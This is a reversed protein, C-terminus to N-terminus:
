RSAGWCARKVADPARDIRYARRREDFWGIWHRCAEGASWDLGAAGGELRALWRRAARSTHRPGAVARVLEWAHKRDLSPVRYGSAGFGTAIWVDRPSRALGRVTAEWRAVGAAREADSVHPDMFDVTRRNAIGELAAAARSRLDPDADHLLTALPAAPESADADGAFAIAADRLIVRGIPASEPWPAFPSPAPTLWATASRGPEGVLLAGDPPPAGPEPAFARALALAGGAEAFPGAVPGADAAIADALLRGAEPGGLGAAGALISLLM